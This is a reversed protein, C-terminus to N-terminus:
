SQQRDDLRISIPIWSLICGRTIQMKLFSRILLLLSFNSIYIKLCELAALEAFLQQIQRINLSMWANITTRTVQLFLSSGNFISPALNTM